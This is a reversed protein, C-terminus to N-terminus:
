RFKGCITVQLCFGSRGEDRVGAMLLKQSSRLWEGTKRQNTRLDRAYIMFSAACAVTATSLGDGSAVSSPAHSPGVQLGPQIVGLSRAQAGGKSVARVPAAPPPMTAATSLTAPCASARRVSETGARQPTKPRDSDGLVESGSRERPTKPREAADSRPADIPKVLPPPGRTKSAATSHTRNNSISAVGELQSESKTRTVRTSSATPATYSPRRQPKADAQSDMRPVLPM